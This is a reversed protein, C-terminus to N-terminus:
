FAAGSQKGPRPKADIWPHTFFTQATDAFKPALSGSFYLIVPSRENREIVLRGGGLLGDIKATSIEEMRIQADGAEGDSGLIVVRRDTVILWRQSFTLDDAMDAAVRIHVQDGSCRAAELKRQIAAPLPELFPPPTSM